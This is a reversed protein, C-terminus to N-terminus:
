FSFVTFTKRRALESRVSNVWAAMSEATDQYRDWCWGDPLPTHMWWEVKGEEMKVDAAVKPHFWCGLGVSEAENLFTRRMLVLNSRRLDDPPSVLIVDTDASAERCIRAIDVTIVDTVSFSYQTM